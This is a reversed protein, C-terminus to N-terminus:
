NETDFDIHQYAGIDPSISRNVGLIDFPVAQAGPLFANNIAESDKGIIFQNLSINKFDLVGNLIVNQYLSTDDFNYLPNNLIEANSTNFKIMSHSVNFTFDAEDVKELGFEISQNGDIICNTFNAMELHSPTIVINNSSDFSSLFNNVLVAPNNRNFSSAWYNAFTCHTFNYSGGVTCALLSEGSNSIVLNEGNINAHRGIIGFNTFNTLRNNKLIVAPNTNDTVGDILLGIIGNKIIAYHLENAISGSRLWITGWQGPVESFSPELRDGEFIVENELQGLVKLTGGSQVLLGSNNHFHIRAGAEITLTKGDPVGIFDYVVHPKDNTWLLEDDKLLRGNIELSNGEGDEGLFITEKIKESDREPFYFTADKVLTVLDVDQLNGSKDFVISDLYLPDVVNTFDITAEVFIFISDNALIDINEFTKGAIGDVNLRYFSNEGRGLEITPITIANNTKNYVKFSRTSSSIQTFVTDLFITDKSFELKGTSAITDFDKRCSSIFILILLILSTYFVKM